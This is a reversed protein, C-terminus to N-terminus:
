IEEFLNKNTMLDYYYDYGEDFLCIKNTEVFYLYKRWNESGFYFGDKEIIFDNEFAYLNIQPQQLGEIILEDNSKLKLTFRNKLVGNKDFWLVNGNKYYIILFDDIKQVGYIPLTPNFSIISIKDDYLYYIKYLKISTDDCGVAIINNDSDISIYNIPNKVNFSILEKQKNIDFIKLYGDQGATIFIENSIFALSYVNSNVNFSFIETKLEVNWVKVHNDISGSILYKDNPSFSLSFVVEKHGQFTFLEEKTKLDWIKITKDWSGSAIKSNDNSFSISKVYYEHGIFKYLEKKEEVDFLIVSNNEGSYAIINNESIDIGYPTSNSNISYIEKKEFISFIKVTKDESASIIYRNDKSFKVNYIYKNHISLSDILKSTQLNWLKITTDVIKKESSLGEKITEYQYKISKDFSSSILTDKTKSFDLSSISNKHANLESFNNFLINKIENDIKINTNFININKESIEVIKNEIEVIKENKPLQFYNEFSDAVLKNDDFSFLQLINQFYLTIKSDNIDIYEIQEKFEKQLVIKKSFIHYVYLTKNISYFLYENLLDYCTKSNQEEGYEGFLSFIDSNKNFQWVRVVGDDGLAVLYKDRYKISLYDTQKPFSLQVRQITFNFDKENLFNIYEEKIEFPTEYNKNYYEHFLKAKIKDNLVVILDQYMEIFKRENEKLILHMETM